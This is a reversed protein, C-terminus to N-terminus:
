ILRLFKLFFRYGIIWVLFLGIVISGQDVGVMFGNYSSHVGLPAVISWVYVTWAPLYLIFTGFKSSHDKYYWNQDQAKTKLYARGVLFLATLAIFTTWFFLNTGGKEATALMTTALLFVGTIVTLIGMIGIVKTKIERQSERTAGCSPCALTNISIQHKCDPCEVLKSKM